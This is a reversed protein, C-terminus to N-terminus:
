PPVFQSLQARLLVCFRAGSSTPWLDCSACLNGQSTSRGAASVLPTNCGYSQGARGRSGAAYHLRPRTDAHTAQLLQLQEAHRPAVEVLSFPFRQDNGIIILVSRSLQLLKRQVEEHRTALCATCRGGGNPRPNLETHSGCSNRLRHGATARTRQCHAPLTAENGLWHLAFLTWM